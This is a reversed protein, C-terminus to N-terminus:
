QPVLSNQMYGTSGNSVLAAFTNVSNGAIGSGIFGPVAQGSTNVKGFLIAPITSTNDNGSFLTNSPDFVQVSISNDLTGKVDFQSYDALAPLTAALALVTGLFLKKINTM